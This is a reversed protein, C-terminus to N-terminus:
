PLLGEFCFYPEPMQGRWVFDRRGPEYVWQDVSWFVRQEGAEERQVLCYTTAGSPRSHTQPDFDPAGTVGHVAFSQARRLLEFGLEIGEQGPGVSVHRGSSVDTVARFGELMSGAGANAPALWRRAAEAYALLYVGDYLNPAAAFRTETFQDDYAEALAQALAPELPRHVNVGLVRVRLEAEFGLATIADDEFNGPALVYHPRPQGEPWASEIEPVIASRELPIEGAFDGSAFLLLLNPRYEAVSRALPALEEAGGLAFRELRGARELAIGAEGAFGLEQEVALRLRQDLDSGAANSYLLAVRQEAAAIGLERAILAQVRRLLPTYAPAVSTQEGLLYWLADSREVTPGPDWFPSLFFVGPDRGSLAMRLADPELSALVARAGLRRELHTMAGGVATAAADCLIGVVPMAGRGGPVPLGGADNLEDIAHAYALEAPSPEVSRLQPAFLGLLALDEGRRGLVADSDSILADFCEDSQLSVCEAGRRPCIFDGSVQSASQCQRNDSCGKVCRDAECIRVKDDVSQCEEDSACQEIDFDSLLTCANAAVVVGCAAAAFL